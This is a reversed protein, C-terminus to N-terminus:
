GLPSPLYPSVCSPSRVIFPDRCIGRVRDLDQFVEGASQILDALLLFGVAPLLNADVVVNSNAHFVNLLVQLRQASWAECSSAM